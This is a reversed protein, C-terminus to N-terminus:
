FKLEVAVDEGKYTFVAYRTTITKVQTDANLYDGEQLVCDNALLVSAGPQLGVGAIVPPHALFEKRLSVRRIWEAARALLENREVTIEPHPTELARLADLADKADAQASDLDNGLFASEAQRLIARVDALRYRAIGIRAQDCTQRARRALREVQDRLEGSKEYGPLKALSTIQASLVAHDAVVADLRGLRYNGQMRSFIEEAAKLGGRLFPVRAQDAVALIREMARAALRPDSPVGGKAREIMEEFRQLVAYMEGVRGEASLRSMEELCAQAQSLYRERDYSRFVDDMFERFNRARRKLEATHIRVEDDDCSRDLYEELRTLREAIQARTVASPNDRLNRCDAAIGALMTTAYPLDGAAFAGHPEPAHPSLPSFPSRRGRQTLIFDEDQGPKKAQKRSSKEGRDLYGGCGWIVLVALGVVAVCSLWHRM